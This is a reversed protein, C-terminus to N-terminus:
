EPNPKIKIKVAQIEEWSVDIGEWVGRLNAFAEAEEGQMGIELRSLKKRLHVLEGELNSIQDKTRELETLVNKDV